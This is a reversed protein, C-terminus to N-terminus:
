APFGGASDHSELYRWTGGVLIGGMMMKLEIISYNHCELQDVPPVSRHCETMELLELDTFQDNFKAGM